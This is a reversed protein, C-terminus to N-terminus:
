KILNRSVIMDYYNEALKEVGEKTYHVFDVFFARNGAFIAGNDVVPVGAERGAQKIIDNFKKHHLVFEEHLPYVVVDNYKKYRMHRSWYEESLELPQTGFLVPIGASSAISAFTKLNRRFVEQSEAPPENGYSKRIYIDENLEALKYSLAELRSKVLWYFRSWGFLQEQLSSSRLFAPNRYKNSYDFAFGPFYSALLDNINESVIVLDPNWSLVDLELLILFHPTAYGSNGM